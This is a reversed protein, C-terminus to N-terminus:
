DEKNFMRYLWGVMGVKTQNLILFNNTATNETEIVKIEEAIEAKISPNSERDMAKNLRNIHNQTTVIESRLDGLSKYDTGLFFTKFGGRYNIKGEAVEVKEESISRAKAISKLEASLKNNKEATANINTVSESLEGDASVSSVVGFFALAIIFTFIYSKQKM